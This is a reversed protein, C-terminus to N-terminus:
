ERLWRGLLDGFEPGKAKRLAFIKWGDRKGACWAVKRSSGWEDRAQDPEPCFRSLAADQQAEGCGSTKTNNLEAKCDGYLTESRPTWRSVLALGARSASTTQKTVVLRQCHSKLQRACKISLNFVDIKTEVRRGKNRLCVGQVTRNQAPTFTIFVGSVGHVPSQLAPTVTVAVTQVNVHRIRPYGLPTINWLVLYFSM